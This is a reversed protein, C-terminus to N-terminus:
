SLEKWSVAAEYMIGSNVRSKNMSINQAVSVIKRALM